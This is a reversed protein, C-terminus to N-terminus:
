GTCAPFLHGKRPQAGESCVVSRDRMGLTEEAVQPTLVYNVEGDKLSAYAVRAREAGPGEIRWGTDHPVLKMKSRQRWWTDVEGPLATWLGADTRLGALHRLLATYTDKAQQSNLYDPHVIFSILGHQQMIQSIQERWLDMSYTGLIYFLSYDQTTTVPLELVDGVFYPMVTCCGGPQPDLHAVNPVSMDYSFTFADYWGLNRYLVGSRFGKSGFRLTWENIRTAARLFQERDDFLHGDHKLDHVNVEFGRERITSLIRESAVYRAEPIIQFSSSIGFSTNVDMLEGTFALGSATEVDHTMIACSSKGEPWFWIFPIRTQPSVQLALSMLTEFVQDVTRDVPWRPFPRDNWGNLWCRQLHRRISVTLTPRVSYYVNRALRKWAPKRVGSVYREYRLNDAVDAPSFPLVCTSGDIRVEKMADSLSDTVRKRGGVSTTGYCVLDSGFRFYGPTSGNPQKDALRFDVSSDPCRYYDLFVQKM